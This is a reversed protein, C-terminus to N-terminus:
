NGGKYYGHMLSLVQLAYTAIEVEHLNLDGSEPIYKEVIVVLENIKQESPLHRQLIDDIENFRKIKNEM